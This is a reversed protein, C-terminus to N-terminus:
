LIKYLLKKNFINYIDKAYEYLSCSFINRFVDQVDQAFAYQVYQILFIICTHGIKYIQTFVISGIIRFVVFDNFSNWGSYSCNEYFHWFICM